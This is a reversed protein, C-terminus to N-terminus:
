KWATTNFEFIAKDDALPEFNFYRTDSPIQRSLSYVSMLNTVCFLDFGVAMLNSVLCFQHGNSYIYNSEVVLGLIYLSQVLNKYLNNHPRLMEIIRGSRHEVSALRPRFKLINPVVSLM